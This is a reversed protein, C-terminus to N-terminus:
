NGFEGHGAVFNPIIIITVRGSSTAHPAMIVIFDRKASSLVGTYGQFM